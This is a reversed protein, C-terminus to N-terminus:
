EEGTSCTGTSQSCSALACPSAAWFAYSISYKGNPLYLDMDTSTGNYFDAHVHGVTMFYCPAGPCRVITVFVGAPVTNSRCYGGLLCNGCIQVTHSVTNTSIQCDAPECHFGDEVTVGSWNNSACQNITICFNTICAGARAQEPALTIFGIIVSLVLWSVLKM